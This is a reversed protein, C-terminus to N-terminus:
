LPNFMNAIYELYLFLVRSRSVISVQPNKDNLCMDCTWKLASRGDPIGYCSRHVTLRCERCCFHQDGLPEMQACVACPLTRPKPMEPVVVAEVEKKKTVVPAPAAIDSHSKEPEKDPASKLKKRPPEPGSSAPAPDAPVSPPPPPPPAAVDVIGVERAIQLEKLLEEDQRRKWARGGAAAVKKSMEEIDEWRIAYRRWLEACRACLAIVYQPSAKDKTSPKAGNELVLTPSPNPPRRWRRSSKASCFQCMFNRKKEVAKISDFASDDDADAVDDALKTVAAEARKAEKKSKRGTYNGWIQKGKDTKKWTYYHRVIHGPTMTKVHKKVLYLESGYKGVGEEFKKQEASTLSPEDFERKDIKPLAEIAKDKDYDRRVLTQLAVDQLNTSREPLGLEKGMGRVEKMFEDTEQGREDSTPPQWLVAATSNPDDLDITDEGRAVYGPPM